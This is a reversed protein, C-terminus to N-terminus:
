PVSVRYLKLPELVGVTQCGGGCCGSARLLDPNFKCRKGRRDNSLQSVTV